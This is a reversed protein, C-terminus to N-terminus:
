CIYCRSVITTVDRRLKPWYYRGKVAEIMKDRGLHGALGGGHLDRIIKERLSTCPICLQEVKMLFGDHIYFDGALQRNIYKEWVQKFDDDQTYLDKLCEFGVIEISLTKILAVRRSLADVVKNQQGGKYVIKYPFKDIFVSWRAHLDSRLQKQKSLYKLAQHDTYLVFDKAILYHEWTKLARVVVYFEKDYTSWKKRAECLKESFFAIPRKEQSLVIGIGVGGHFRRVDTVNSPTPWLRIAKVKEEDVKIGDKSIIFGLFLLNNSMFTYKKLNVYLKNERLANLVERIHGLHETISKCEFLGDRTKFATKWEDGPRIRIQHYGSRLDIKSFAVTGDHQDLMDDLRPIPFKYGITIKNIARSDVCMRWSGDKKPTLLAPIACPSMSVQIHGKRLLEEVKERLIENEKPSMRYHPLNPLSAGPVFDIHHQIDRMPPLENPLEDPVVDHFEDLLGQVEVPIKNEELSENMSEGKVVLLHVEHTDKCERVFEAHHHTITLFNRREAKPAKPPNKKAMPLLTYHVGEKKLLYTNKRGLHKADKDFQWPRGLLIHCADMDVIDCYVEVTYKGISFPVKCREEVRVGDVEKIWGITYPNPHKEPPLQLKQVVDRCIINEQILKRVVCTYEEHEYPGEEDEGDPECYVEDDVDEEEEKEVITVAKRRPCDSSRHGIANATNPPHSPQVGAAPKSKDVTTPRNDSGNYRRYSEAQTREQFMLKAKLALNRAEQVSLIMQVGIKDKIAPRLGSLYHTAQQNDSESLQNREALRQFESTYENVSRTGQACRQYSEFMYQEYDPPLFRGRILQKMRRWTRVPGRGERIRAERMREWWVSAGGKLRFAVLKVRREKPIEMYEFFRDVETIWDLLGEIDLDGSFTPIDVKLKFEDHNRRPNFNSPNRWNRGNRDDGPLVLAAGLELEDDSDDDLVPNRPIPNVLPRGYDNGGTPYPNDRNRPVDERLLTRLQGAIEVLQQEINRTATRKRSGSRLPSESKGSIGFAKSMKECFKLLTTDM